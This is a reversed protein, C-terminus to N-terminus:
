LRPPHIKIRAKQQKCVTLYENIRVRVGMLQTFLTISLPQLQGIRAFRITVWIYFKKMCYLKSTNIFRVFDCKWQHTDRYPSIKVRGWCHCRSLEHDTLLHDAHVILVVTDVIHNIKTRFSTKFTLSNQIVIFWVVRYNKSLKMPYVTAFITNWWYRLDNRVLVYRLPICIGLSEVYSKVPISHTHINISSQIDSNEYIKLWPLISIASDCSSGTM